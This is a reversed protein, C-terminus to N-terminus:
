LSQALTGAWHPRTVEVDLRGHLLGYAAAVFPVAGVAVATQELLRRRAPSPPDLAIAGPMPAAAHGAAAKRSTHYVWAAARTMRDATSFMIVVGFGVWSGVLWWWFPEEFLVHRLMLHTSDGGRPRDFIAFNYVFFFVYVVTAIVALLARKPKGPIFREGIDLVRRIWFLQAAFLMVLLAYVLLCRVPGCWSLWLAGFAILSFTIM